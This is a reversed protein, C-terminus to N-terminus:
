FLYFATEIFISAPVPEGQCMAPRFRWRHSITDLTAKTLSFADSRIPTIHYARGDIGVVIYTMVAGRGRFRRVGRTYRPQPVELTEPPFPKECVPWDVARALPSFSDAPPETGTTLETIEVEVFVKKQERQRMLRPYSKAGFGAYNLYEFAWKADGSHERESVLLGTESELCVERKTGKKSSHFCTVPRSQIRRKGIKTVDESKPIRPGDGLTLLQRMRYEFYPQYTTTSARQIRRGDGVEIVNFKLDPVSTARRWHGRSDRLEEYRGEVPGNPVNLLRVRARLLFPPSGQARIDSRERARALFAEAEQSMDAAGRAATPVVLLGCLFVWGGKGRHSDFIMGPQNGERAPYCIAHSSNRYSAAGQLALLLRM